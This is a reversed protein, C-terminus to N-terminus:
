AAGTADPAEAREWAHRRGSPVDLRHPDAEHLQEVLLPPGQRLLRVLLLRPSVAWFTSRAASLGSRHSVLVMVGAAYGRRRREEGSTYRDYHRGRVATSGSWRTGVLIAVDVRLSRLSDELQPMDRPAARTVDPLISKTTM